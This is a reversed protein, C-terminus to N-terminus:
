FILGLSLRVRWILFYIKAYHKPKGDNDLTKGGDVVIGLGLTKPQSLNLLFLPKM